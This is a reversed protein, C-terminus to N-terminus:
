NKNTYESEWISVINYGLDELVKFRKATKIFLEEFTIGTVPNIDEAPYVELNGHWFDGLFEYVTNTTVDFGDVKYKTNPISFERQNIGLEDLWRNAVKSSTSTKTCVPCGQDRSCIDWLRSIWENNCNNCKFVSPGKIGAAKHLTINLGILKDTYKDYNTTNYGKRKSLGLKVKYHKITHESKGLIDSIERATKGCETLYAISDLVEDSWKAYAM